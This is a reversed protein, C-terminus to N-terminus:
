CHPASFRSDASVANIVPAPREAREGGFGRESLAKPLGPVIRRRRWGSEAARRERVSRARMTRVGRSSVPFISVGVLERRDPARNFLSARHNAQRSLQEVSNSELRVVSRSRNSLSCHLRM